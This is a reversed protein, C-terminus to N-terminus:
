KHFNIDIGFISSGMIFENTGTLINIPKFEYAFAGNRSTFKFGIGIKTGMYLESFSPLNQPPIHSYQETGSIRNSYNVFAGFTLVFAFSHIRVVDGNLDAGLLINKHLQGRYKSDGRQVFDGLLVNPNIKLRDSKGLQTQFGINYLSGFGREKFGQYLGGGVGVKISSTTYRTEQANAYFALLSLLLLLLFKSQNM